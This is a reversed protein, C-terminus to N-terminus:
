IQPKCNFQTESEEERGGKQLSILSEVTLSEMLHSTESM